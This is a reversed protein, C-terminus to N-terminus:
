DRKQRAECGFRSSPLSLNMLSSQSAGLTLDCGNDIVLADPPRISEWAKALSEAAGPTADANRHPRNPLRTLVSDPKPEQLSAAFDIPLGSYKCVWLTLWPRVSNWQRKGNHGRVSFEFQNHTIRYPASGSEAQKPLTTKEWLLQHKRLRPRDRVAVNPEQTTGTQLAVKRLSQSM